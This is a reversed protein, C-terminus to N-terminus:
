QRPTFLSHEVGVAACQDLIRKWEARGKPKAVDIQYDNECWPVHARLSKQPRYLVFADVCRTVADFEAMDLLPFTAVGKGARPCVAM